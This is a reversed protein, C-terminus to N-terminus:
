IHVRRILMIFIPKESGSNIFNCHQAPFSGAASEHQCLPQLTQGTLVIGGSGAGMMLPWGPFPLYIGLSSVNPCHGLGSAIQEKYTITYPKAGLSQPATNKSCAKKSLKRMNAPWRHPELQPRLVVPLPQSLPIKCSWWSNSETTRFGWWASPFQQKKGGLGSICRDLKKPLKLNPLPISPSYLPPLSYNFLSSLLSELIPM